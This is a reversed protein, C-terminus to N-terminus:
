VIIQSLKDIVDEDYKILLLNINNNLCYDVKIKDRKKNLKLMPEGGFIRIAKYHQQGQYEICLNNDPLYFDFSLKNIHKCDDFKYQRIYKLKKKELFFRIEKEGKSERCVPCGSKSHLHQDPRQEFDGHKKCTIKIKVKNNLYVVNDYSYTDQHILRADDIFASLEKKAKDTMCGKCGNGSMHDSVRAMFMGHVSCIIPVKAKNNEYEEILSYDYREGHVSNAKDIFSKLGLLKCKGCGQKRNVHHYPTILFEGHEGCIVSVNTRGCIYEKILSYDYKDGHVGKANDLFKNLGIRRSSFNCKPCGQSQVGTHASARQEFVGHEPCIIKVKEKDGIYNVLSYDYREGHNNKASKIFDETTKKRM